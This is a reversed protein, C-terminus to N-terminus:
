HPSPAGSTSGVWDWPPLANIGRSHLMGWALNLWSLSTGEAGCLVSGLKLDALWHALHHHIEPNHEEWGRPLAVHILLHPLVPSPRQPDLSLEQHSCSKNRLSHILLCFCGAPHPQHLLLYSDMPACQQCVTLGGRPLILTVRLSSLVFGLPTSTNQSWTSVPGERRQPAQGERAPEQDASLASDGFAM